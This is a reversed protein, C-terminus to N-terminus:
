VPLILLEKTSQTLIECGTETIWVDDEIRVGGLDSLYIGPEVTVLMGPKLVVSSAASLNPLEHVELGLGHGTSHGYAPGYGAAAIIDRTLADAEKGTLGPRIHKVGNLQAQLVIDYIEKMKPDPEGVSVTRTIDSNYGQYHAGFDLTVMEGAQIVKESARGHPLAGRVGSAVIIDFASASAGERRMFFELEMAVDLERVGPRIYSLIHTFAADAIRVAERIIKMEAEDKYMRLEEILGSTPVLEVGAFAEKWAEYVGVSIHNKEFALRKVGLSKLQGAIAEVPKRENNVITFLPAEASAQDIYRFDTVLVAADATVIVWGTSGTFGSIYRRNERNETILADVGQEALANRLQKLKKSM